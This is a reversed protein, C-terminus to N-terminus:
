SWSISSPRQSTGPASADLGQRRALDLEPELEAVYDDLGRDKAIAELTKGTSWHMANRAHFIAIAAGSAGTLSAETLDAGAMAAGTLDMSTMDADRLLTGLLSASRAVASSLTARM